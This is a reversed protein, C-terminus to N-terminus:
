APKDNMSALTTKRRVVFMPVVTGDKSKYKVQDTAFESPDPSGAALQTVHLREQEFNTMDIRYSSGPDTFSTFKYILETDDHKGSISIITGIDPLSVDHLHKGTFDYVKVKDSADELYSAVLQGNICLAFQLVNKEHEALIETEEKNDLDYSIVKSKPAKYNTKFYVKRGENHIAEYGGLWESIVPTFSVEKDLNENKLDAHYVLNIDNCDRRVGLFLHEGDNSVEADFM